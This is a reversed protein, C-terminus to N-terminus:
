RTDIIIKYSFRHTAEQGNEAIEKYIPRGSRQSGIETVNRRRKEIIEKQLQLNDYFVGLIEKALKKRKSM